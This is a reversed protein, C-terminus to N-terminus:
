RLDRPEGVAEVGVPNVRASGTVKLILSNM